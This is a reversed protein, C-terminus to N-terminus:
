YIYLSNMKRYNKLIKGNFKIEYKDIKNQIQNM